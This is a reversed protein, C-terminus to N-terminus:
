KIKNNIYHNRFQIEWCRNHVTPSKYAKFAFTLTKVTYIFAYLVNTM